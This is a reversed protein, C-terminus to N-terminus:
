CGLAQHLCPESRATARPTGLFRFLGSHGGPGRLSGMGANESWAPDLFPQAEPRNTHGRDVPLNLQGVAEGRNAGRARWPVSSPLPFRCLGLTQFLLFSPFTLLLSSTGGGEGFGTDPHRGAGQRFSPNFHPSSYTGDQGRLCCAM